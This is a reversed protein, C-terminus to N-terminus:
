HRLNLMCSQETTALEGNTSTPVVPNLLKPGMGRQHWTSLPNEVDALRAKQEALECAWEYVGLLDGGEMFALGPCRECYQRIPCVSCVPLDSERTARMRELEMSHFWIDDFRQRRLNGAPLPLQVCPYVDGYPSVYCSNHGASCPIDEYANSEIGSSTVSGLIPDSSSCAAGPEPQRKHLAPDQLVPLLDTGAVRHQLVGLSGDIMPTITMDFVYPVGLRESLAIVGRYALLNQRMLPCAIKVLIGQEKLLRIAALTRNFSGPALTIADHVFPDGSYISIQVRHVGLARLWAARARTILLANTKLSVDFHLSRAHELIAFFDKRLFVEGGSFTLFLSGAEALQDLAGCVEATTMEGHDEHDLYCHVCKENCRYTLDFHVNLPRHREVTRSVLRDIVPTESVAQGRRKGGIGPVLLKRQALDALLAESDELAKALTVEYEEALLEAIQAASHQGDAHRWVFSGTDNLEHMVSEVPSIIVTEGDIERWALLPNRQWCPQVGLTM